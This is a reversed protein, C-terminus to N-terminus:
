IAPYIQNPGLPRAELAQIYEEANAWNKHEDVTAIVHERPIAEVRGFIDGADEGGVYVRTKTPRKWSYEPHLNASVPFGEVDFEIRNNNNM